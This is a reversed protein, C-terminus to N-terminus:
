GLYKEILGEADSSSIDGNEVLKILLAAVALKEPIDEEGVEVTDNQAAEELDSYASEAASEIAEESGVLEVLEDLLAEDLEFPLNEESENLRKLKIM